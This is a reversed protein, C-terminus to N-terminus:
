TAGPRSRGSRRGLSSIRPGSEAERPVGPHKGGPIDAARGASPTTVHLGTDGPLRGVVERLLAHASRVVVGSQARVQRRHDGTGPATVEPVTVALDVGSVQQVRE